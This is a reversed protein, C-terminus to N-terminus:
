ASDGKVSDGKWLGHLNCYAYPTYTKGAEPAFSLLAEADTPTFKACAAVEGGEDTVFVLEIWHDDADSEGKKM